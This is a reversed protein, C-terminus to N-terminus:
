AVPTICDSQCFLHQGEMDLDPQSRNRSQLGYSRQQGTRMAAPLCSMGGSRDVTRQRWHHTTRRRRRRDQKAPSNGQSCHIWRSAGRCGWARPAAATWTIMQPSGQGNPVQRCASVRNLRCQCTCGVPQEAPHQWGNCYHPHTLMRLKTPSRASYSRSAAVPSRGHAWSRTASRRGAASSRCAAARLHTALWHITVAWDPTLWYASLRHLAWRKQDPRLVPRCHRVAQRSAACCVSLLDTIRPIGLMHVLAGSCHGLTVPDCSWLTAQQIPEDCESVLEPM